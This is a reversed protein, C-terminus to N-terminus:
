SLGKTLLERVKVQLVTVQERLCGEEEVGFRCFDVIYLKLLKFVMLSSRKKLLLPHFFQLVEKYCFM